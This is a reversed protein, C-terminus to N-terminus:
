LTAASESRGTQVPSGICVDNTRVHLIINDRPQREALHLMALGLSLMRRLVGENAVVIGVIEEANQFLQVHLLVGRKRM